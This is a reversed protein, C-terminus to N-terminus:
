RAGLSKKVDGVDIPGAHGPYATRMGLRILSIWSASVDEYQDAAVQDPLHLDGVFASGDDLLLSVSDASHGPTPVIQGAVGISALTGRGDTTIVLDEKEVLIPEYAGGKREYFALLDALYPIQVVHILLRAGASNKVEQILGAHDPHSHTLMVFKIEALELDYKRLAHRLQPLTGAWGADVLLRGHRCDVLYHNTSQYAITLPSGM